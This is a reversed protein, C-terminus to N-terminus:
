QCVDQWRICHTSTQRDGRSSHPWEPTERRTSWAGPVVLHEPLSPILVWSPFLHTPLSNIFSTLLPHDTRRGGAWGPRRGQGRQAPTHTTHIHIPLHSMISVRTNQGRVAGDVLAM